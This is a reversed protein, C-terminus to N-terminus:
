CFPIVSTVTTPRDKSLIFNKSGYKSNSYFEADVFTGATTKKVVISDVIQEQYYLFYIGSPKYNSSGYGGLTMTCGSSITYQTSSTLGMDAAFKCYIGPAEAEVSVGFGTTVSLGIYSGSGFTISTDGLSANHRVVFNMFDKAGNELTDTLVYRTYVYGDIGKRQYTITTFNNNLYSYFQSSTLDQSTVNSKRININNEYYQSYNEGTSNMLSVFLLPLLLLEKKM